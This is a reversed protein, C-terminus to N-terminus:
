MIKNEMQMQEKQIDTIMQTTSKSCKASEVTFSDQGQRKEGALRHAVQPDQTVQPCAMSQLHYISWPKMKLRLFQEKSFTGSVSDWWKSPKLYARAQQRAGQHASGTPEVRRRSAEAVQLM